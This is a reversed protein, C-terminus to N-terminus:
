RGRSDELEELEEESLQKGRNRRTEKPLEITFQNQGDIIDVQMVVDVDNLQCDCEFDPYDEGSPRDVKVNHKGVVAGDGTGYTSLVFEGNEDADAFGAKGVIASGGKAIPEFFVMAHPVPKGECVVRGTVKAVPFKELGGGCGCLLVVLASRRIFNM